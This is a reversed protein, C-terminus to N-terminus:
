STKTYQLPATAFYHVGGVTVDVQMDCTVPDGVLTAGAVAPTATATTGGSSISYNGTGVKNICSWAYATPTGGSVTVTAPSFTWGTTSGSATQSAPSIGLTINAPVWASGDWRRLPKQVWASGNWVKVPKEVWASGNWV